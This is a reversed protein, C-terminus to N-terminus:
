GIFYKLTIGYINVGGFFFKILLLIIYHKYTKGSVFTM